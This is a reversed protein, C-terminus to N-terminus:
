PGVSKDPTTHPEGVIEVCRHQVTDTTKGPDPGTARTPDGVGQPPRRQGQLKDQRLLATTPASKPNQTSSYQRQLRLLVRSTTNASTQTNCGRNPM